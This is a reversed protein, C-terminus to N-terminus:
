ATPVVNDLIILLACNDWEELEPCPATARNRPPDVTPLHRDFLIESKEDCKTLGEYGENGIGRWPLSPACGNRM